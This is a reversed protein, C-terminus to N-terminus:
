IGEIEKEFQQRCLLARIGHIVFFFAACVCFYCSFEFPISAIFLYHTVLHIFAATLTDIFAFTTFFARTCASHDINPVFFGIHLWNLYDRWPHSWDETTTKKKEARENKSHEIHEYGHSLRFSPDYNLRWHDHSELRVVVCGTCWWWYSPISKNATYLASLHLWFWKHISSTRYYQM